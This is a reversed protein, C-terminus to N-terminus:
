FEDVVCVRKLVINFLLGTFLKQITTNISFRHLLNRSLIAKEYVQHMTEPAM